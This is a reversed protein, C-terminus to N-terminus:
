GVWAPMRCLVSERRGTRFHLTGVHLTKGTEQTQTSGNQQHNGESAPREVGSWCRLGSQAHRARGVIHVAMNTENVGGTAYLHDVLLAVGLANQIAGPAVVITSDPDIVAAAGIEFDASLGGRRHDNALADVVTVVAAIAFVGTVAFEAAEAFGVHNVAGGIVHPARPTRGIGAKAHAHNALAALGGAYLALRPAGSLAANPDVAAAAGIEANGAVPLRAGGGQQVARGIVHVAIEARNVRAVADEDDALAAFGIANVVAGPTIVALTDPDVSAAAGIEFDDVTAVTFPAFPCAVPAVVVAAAPVAIMRAVAVVVAVTIIATVAVAIVAIVTGAVIARVAIAIIAGAVVAGAVIAGWVPVLKRVSWGAAANRIAVAPKKKEIAM